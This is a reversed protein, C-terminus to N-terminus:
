MAEAESSVQAAAEGADLREFFAADSPVDESEGGEIVGGRGAAAIESPGAGTPDGKDSAM